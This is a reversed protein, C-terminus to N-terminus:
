RQWHMHHVRLLPNRRELYRLNRSLRQALAIECAAQCAPVSENTRVYRFAKEDWRYATSAVTKLHLDLLWRVEWQIVPLANAGFETTAEVLTGGRSSASPLGGTPYFCARRKRRGSVAHAPNVELVHGVVLWDFLMRLAALKAM